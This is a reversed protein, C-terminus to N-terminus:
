RLDVNFDPQYTYLGTPQQYAFEPGLPPGPGTPARPGQSPLGGADAPEKQVHSSDYKCHLTLTLTYLQHPSKPDQRKVTPIVYSRQLTICSGGHDARQKSLM